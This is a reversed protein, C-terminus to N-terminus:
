KHKPPTFTLGVKDYQRTGYKNFLHFLLENRGMRGFEVQFAIAEEHLDKRVARWSSGEWAKTPRRGQTNGQM